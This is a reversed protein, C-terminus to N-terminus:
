IRVKLAVRQQPGVVITPVSERRDLWSRIRRSSAVHPRWVNMELDFAVDVALDCLEEKRVLSQVVLITM